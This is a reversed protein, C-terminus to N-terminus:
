LYLSCIITEKGPCLLLPNAKTVKRQDNLNFCRVRDLVTYNIFNVMHPGTNQITFKIVFPQKEFAVSLHVEGDSGKPDSEIKIGGKDSIM